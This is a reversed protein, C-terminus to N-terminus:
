GVSTRDLSDTEEVLYMSATSELFFRSTQFYLTESVQRLASNGIVEALERQFAMNIRCYEAPDPRGRLAECRALLSRLRAIDAASRPRPALEGILEALRMRLAYIERLRPLDITTVVTGVCHRSEVLGGAELHALVRRIPTRSVGFEAALAAESLRTGPPYTLLCIRERIEDRMLDSSCVDSSLDSLRM